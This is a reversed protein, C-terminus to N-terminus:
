LVGAERFLRDAKDISREARLGVRGAREDSRNSRRDQERALALSSAISLSFGRGAQRLGRLAFSRARSGTQSSPRERAITERGCRVEGEFARAQRVVAKCRGLSAALKPMEGRFM